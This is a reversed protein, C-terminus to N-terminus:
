SLEMVIVGALAVPRLGAVLFIDTTIYYLSGDGLGDHHVAQGILDNLPNGVLGHCIPLLM